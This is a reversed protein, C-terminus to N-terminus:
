PILREIPECNPPSDEAEELLEKDIVAELVLDSLDGITATQNQDNWTGVRANIM